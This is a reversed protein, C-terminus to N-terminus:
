SLLYAQKSLSGKKGGISGGGGSGETSTHKVTLAEPKGLVEEEDVKQDSRLDCGLVVQRLFRTLM